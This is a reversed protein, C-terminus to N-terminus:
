TWRGACTKSRSSPSAVMCMSVAANNVWTDIRGFARLAAEGITEVQHPDAVDATIHVARGGEHRIEEVAHALEDGNRAALVVSAGRQAAQKATVLGIGSSAGTIVMVQENIPLLEIRM